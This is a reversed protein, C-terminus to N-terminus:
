FVRVFSRPGVDVFAAASPLTRLLRGNYDFVGIDHAGEALPAYIERRESDVALSPGVRRDLTFEGVRAGGLDHLSLKRGTADLVLLRDAAVDLALGTGGVVGALPFTRVSKGLRTTEAVATGNNELLFIHGDRPRVALDAQGKATDGVGDLTLERKIARAPRDVVRIANGPALRLFLHDTFPDYALGILQDEPALFSPVDVQREGGADVLMEPTSAGASYIHLPGPTACGGLLLTAAALLAFRQIAKRTTERAGRRTCRPIFTANM